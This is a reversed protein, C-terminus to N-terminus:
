DNLFIRYNKKLYIIEGRENLKELYYVMAKSINDARENNNKGEFLLGKGGSKVQDQCAVSSTVFSNSKNVLISSFCKSSSFVRNIQLM